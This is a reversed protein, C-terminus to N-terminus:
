LLPHGGFMYHTLEVDNSLNLKEMLNARHAHVTKPSLCLDLAIAKVAMGRVLREAVQYERHTLPDRRSHSLKLATEPTLYCGGTAVSHVAAILEDKRCRKSLFGRAGAKLAQQVLTPNDHMSLILTALSKPLQKILTLGSMDTVSIDCICVQVGSGPLGQLADRCNDFEAVVQFDAEINLLQAFGARVIAHDDILAITIM